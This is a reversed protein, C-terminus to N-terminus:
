VPGAFHITSGFQEWLFPLTRRLGFNINFARALTHWKGASWLGQEFVTVWQKYATSQIHTRGAALFLEPSPERKAPSALRRLVPHQPLLEM